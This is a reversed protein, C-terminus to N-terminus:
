KHETALYDGVNNQTRLGVSFYFKIIRLSSLFIFEITGNLGCRTVIYSFREGTM